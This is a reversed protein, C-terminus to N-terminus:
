KFLLSEVESAVDMFGIVCDCFYHENLLSLTETRMLRLTNETDLALWCGSLTAQDANLHLMDLCKMGAMDSPGFIFRHIVMIDNAIDFEIIAMEQGDTKFLACAENELSLPTNLQCSLASILREAQLDSAKSIM